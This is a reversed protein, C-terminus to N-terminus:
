EAPAQRRLLRVAMAAAVMGWVALAPWAEYRGLAALWSLNLASGLEHSAVGYMGVPFVLSWLGPEYALPVRRLAHRWIGLVVLLPILWTGFAWLMVSSGAVVERVSDQLPGPPQRVIQAGALVSIATAGMSVWYVPSLRAAEVQYALLAATVLGAVLLYMVVGVAWCCVALAAAAQPVPPPLATLGVAISQTAVPLLFWSGDAGALALRVGSAGAVLLPLGYSLLAWSAAGIALLVVPWTAHGDAALRAALVDSGAVLTFFGFARRPDAANARVQGRFATLRWAYVAMLLVYVVIAAVLLIGSLLAAGDLQMARSVIGTAMVVAFSGPDADRVAAQLQSAGAKKLSM